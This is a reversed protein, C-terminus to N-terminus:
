ALWRLAKLTLLVLSFVCLLVVGNLFIGIKAARRARGFKLGIGGLIVGAVSLPLTAAVVQSLRLGFVRWGFLQTTLIVGFVLISLMGWSISIRIVEYDDDPGESAYTETM